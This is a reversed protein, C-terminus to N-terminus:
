ATLLAQPAHHRGPVVESRGVVRDLAVDVWARVEPPIKVGVAEVNEEIEAVTRCGSLAVAVIPDRIVWALALRPLTTGLLRQGFLM